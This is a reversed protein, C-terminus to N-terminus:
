PRYTQMLRHTHRQDWQFGRGVFLRHNSVPIERSTMVYRPLRRMQRRYRLVTCAQKLRIAGFVTCVLAAGAGMSSDLALSWPAVLCLIAASGCAAVSYLEVAPRLLTEVAHSQTV